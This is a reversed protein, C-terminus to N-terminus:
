FRFPEQRTVIISESIVPNNAPDTVAVAVTWSGNGNDTITTQIAFMLDGFGQSQTAGSIFVTRNTTGINVLNNPNMISLEATEIEEQLIGAVRGLLDSKSAAQWSMPQMSILALIGVTTLFMAIVVEILNIGRNNCTLLSM